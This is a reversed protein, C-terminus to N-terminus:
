SLNLLQNIGVVLTVSDKAWRNVGGSYDKIHKATRYLYGLQGAPETNVYVILGDLSIFGSCGLKAGNVSKNKLAVKYHLPLMNKLKTALLM